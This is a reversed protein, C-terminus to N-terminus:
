QSFDGDLYNFPAGSDGRGMETILDPRLDPTPANIGDLILRAQVMDNYLRRERTQGSRGEGADKDRLIYMKYALESILAETYEPPANFFSNIDSFGPVGPWMFFEFQNGPTPYPFPYITVNPLTMQVYLRITVQSPVQLVPIDAYDEVNIIEIPIRTPQAVNSLLVLNGRVIREPRYSLALGNVDTNITGTPGLTFSPPTLTPIAPILFYRDDIFYRKLQEANWRGTINNAEFLCDQLMEPSALVGTRIQAARRLAMYSISNAGTGFPIGPTVPPPPPTTGGGNFLQTNFAGTNFAAM